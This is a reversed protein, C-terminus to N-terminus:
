PRLLGAERRLPAADACDLRSPVHSCRRGIFTMRSPGRGFRGANYPIRALPRRRGCRAYDDGADVGSFHAMRVVMRVVARAARAAKAVRARASSPMHSNLAGGVLSRSYRWPKAGSAFHSSCRCFAETRKPAPPDALKTEGSPSTIVLWWTPRPEM